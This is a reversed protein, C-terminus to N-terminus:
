AGNVREYAKLFIETIRQVRKRISDLGGAGILTWAWTAAHTDLPNKRKLTVAQILRAIIFFSHHGKEGKLVAVDVCFSPDRNDEGQGEEELVQLGKERLKQEVTSKLLQKSPGARSLGYTVFVTVRKIGRLSEEQKQNKVLGHSFGQSSFALVLIFSIGILGQKQAMSFVGWFKTGLLCRLTIM